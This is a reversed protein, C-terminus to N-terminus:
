RLFFLQRPTPRHAPADTVSTSSEPPSQTLQNGPMCAPTLGTPASVCFENYKSTEIEFWCFLHTTKLWVGKIKTLSFIQWRLIKLKLRETLIKQLPVDM